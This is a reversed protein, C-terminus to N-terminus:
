LLSSVLIHPDPIGSSIPAICVSIFSVILAMRFFVASDAAGCIDTFMCASSGECAVFTSEMVAEPIQFNSLASSM